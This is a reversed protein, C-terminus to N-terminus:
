SSPEVAACAASAALAAVAGIAVTAGIMHLVPTASTALLAFALFTTAAALLVSGLTARRAEAAAPLRAFFMAYNSGIGAVLLLAVLHFLTLSGAWAVLAGATVIVAA